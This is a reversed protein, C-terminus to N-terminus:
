EVNLLNWTHNKQQLLDWLMFHIVLEGYVIMM